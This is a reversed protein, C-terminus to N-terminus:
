QRQLPRVSVLMRFEGHRFDTLLDYYDAAEPLYERLFDERREETM